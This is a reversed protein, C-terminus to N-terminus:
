ENLLKSLILRERLSSIYPGKHTVARLLHSVIVILFDVVLFYFIIHSVFVSADVIRVGGAGKLTLDPNVVGWNANVPSMSATGVGHFASLAIARTYSETLTDNGTLADAFAKGFPGKIYGSWQVGKM